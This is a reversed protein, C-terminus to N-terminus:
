TTISSSYARRGEEEVALLLVHHPHRAQGSVTPPRKYHTVCFMSRKRGRSLPWATITTTDSEPRAKALCAAARCALLVVASLMVYTVNLMGRVITGSSTPLTMLCPCLGPLNELLHPPASNTQTACLVTSHQHPRGRLQQRLAALLQQSPLVHGKNNRVCCTMQRLVHSEQLSSIPGHLCACRGQEHRVTSVQLYSSTSLWGACAQWEM